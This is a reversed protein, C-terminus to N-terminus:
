PGDLTSGASTGASSSLAYIRADNSVHGAQLGFDLLKLRGGKALSSWDPILYM